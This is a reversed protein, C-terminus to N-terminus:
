KKKKQPLIKQVSPYMKEIDIPFEKLIVDVLVYRGKRILTLTIKDGVKHNELLNSFKIGDNFLEGDIGIIADHKKIGQPLEKGTADSVFMGSVNPIHDLNLNPLKEIVLKRQRPHGLLMIQIGIAPRSVTGTELM